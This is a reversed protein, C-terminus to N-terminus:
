SIWLIRDMIQGIPTGPLLDCMKEDYRREWRTQEEAVAKLNEFYMWFPWVGSAAFAEIKSNNIAKNVKTDFGVAFGCIILLAKSITVIRARPNHFLLKERFCNYVKEIGGHREDLIKGLSDSSDAHENTTRTIEYIIGINVGDDVAVVDPLFNDNRQGSNRFASWSQLLRLVNENIGILTHGRQQLNQSIANTIQSHIENLLRVNGPWNNSFRELRKRCENPEPFLSM